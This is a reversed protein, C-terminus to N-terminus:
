GRRKHIWVKIIKLNSKRRRSVLLALISSVALDFLTAVPLLIYANILTCIVRTHGTQRAYDFKFFSFRHTGDKQANSKNTNAERCLVPLIQLRELAPLMAVKINGEAKCNRTTNQERQHVSRPPLTRRITMTTTKV